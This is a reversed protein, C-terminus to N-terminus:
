QQSFIYSSSTNYFGAEMSFATNGTNLDLNALVPEHWTKKPQQNAQLNAKDNTKENPQMLNKKTFNFRAVM